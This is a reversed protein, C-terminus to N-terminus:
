CRGSRVGRRSGVGGRSWGAGAPLSQGSHVELLAGGVGGGLAGGLREPAGRQPTTDPPHHQCVAARLPLLLLRRPPAPLTQGSVHTSEGRLQM